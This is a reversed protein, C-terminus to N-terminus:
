ARCTHSQWFRGGVLARSRAKLRARLKWRAPALVLIDDMFRLYFLGLKELTADLRLGSTANGQATFAAIPLPTTRHRSHGIGIVHSYSPALAQRVAGALIMLVASLWDRQAGGLRGACSSRPPIHVRMEPVIQFWPQGLQPQFGLRWATWQTAAWTTGLVILV